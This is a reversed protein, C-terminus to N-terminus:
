GSRRAPECAWRGSRRPGSAGSDGAGRVVSLPVAGGRRPARATRSFRGADEGALGPRGAARHLCHLRLLRSGGPPLPLCRAVHQRHCIKKKKLLKCYVMGGTSRYQLAAARGPLPASPLFRSANDPPRAARHCEDCKKGTEARGTLYSGDMMACATRLRSGSCAPHEGPRPGHPACAYIGPRDPPVSHTAARVGPLIILM